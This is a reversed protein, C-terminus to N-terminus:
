LEGAKVILDKALWEFVSKTHLCFDKDVFNEGYGKERCNLPCGGGCVFIYECENCEPNLLPIQNKWKNLFNTKMIKQVVNKDFINIFTIGDMTEIHCCGVGGDPLFTLQDGRGLCDAIYFEERVFAKVKRM